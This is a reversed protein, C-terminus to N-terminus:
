MYKHVTYLMCWHLCVHTSYVVLYMTTSYQGVMCTSKDYVNWISQQRNQTCTPMMVGVHMIERKTCVHLHISAICFKFLNCLLNLASKIEQSKAFKTLTM